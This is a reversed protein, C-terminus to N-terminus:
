VVLNSKMARRNKYWCLIISAEGFAGDWAKEFNGALRKSQGKTASAALMGQFKAIIIVCAVSEGNLVDSSHSTWNWNLLELLTWCFEESDIRTKRRPFHPNLIREYGLFPNLKVEYESQLIWCFYHYPQSTTMDSFGEYYCGVWSVQFWSEMNWPCMSGQFLSSLRWHQGWFTWRTSEQLHIFLLKGSNWRGMFDDVDM